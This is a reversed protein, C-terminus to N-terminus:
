PVEQKGAGALAKKAADAMPGPQGSAAKEFVAKVRDDAPAVAALANIAFSGIWPDRPAEVERILAPIADKAVSGM